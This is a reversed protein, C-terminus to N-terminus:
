RLFRKGDPIYSPDNTILVKDIILRCAHSGLRQLRLTHPGAALPFVTGADVNRGFLRDWQMRETQRQGKRIGALSSREFLSPERHRLARNLPRRLKAKIRSTDPDHCVAGPLLADRTFCARVDTQIPAPTETGAILFTSFVPVDTWAPEDLRGDITVTRPPVRPIVQAPVAEASAPASITGSLALGVALRLWTQRTLLDRM